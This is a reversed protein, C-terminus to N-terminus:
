DVRLRVGIRSPPVAYAGHQNRGEPGSQGSITDHGRPLRPRSVAVTFGEACAGQREGLAPGFSWLGPQQGFFCITTRSTLHIPLVRTAARANRLAGAISVSRPLLGGPLRAPADRRSGGGLRRRQTRSQGVGLWRRLGVRRGPRLQHKGDIGGGRALRGPRGGPQHRVRQRLRQRAFSDHREGHMAARTCVNVANVLSALVSRSRAAPTAHAARMVRTSGIREAQRVCGTTRSTM